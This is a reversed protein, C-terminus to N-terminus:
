LNSSQVIREGVEKNEMVASVKKGDDTAEFTQLWGDTEAVSVLEEALSKFFGTSNSCLTVDSCVAAYAPDVDEYIRSM